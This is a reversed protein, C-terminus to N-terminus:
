RRGTVDGHRLLVFRFCPPRRGFATRITSYYTKIDGHREIPEYGSWVNVQLVRHTFATVTQVVPSETAFRICPQRLSMIRTRLRIRIDESLHEGRTSRKDHALSCKVNAFLRPPSSGGNRTGQKTSECTRR